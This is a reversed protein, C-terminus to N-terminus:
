GSYGDHWRPSQAGYEASDLGDVGFTGPKTSTRLDFRSVCPASFRVCVGASIACTTRRSFVEVFHRPLRVFDEFAAVQFAVM